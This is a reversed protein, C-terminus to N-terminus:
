SMKRRYRRTRSKSCVDCDAHRFQLHKYENAFLWNLFQANVIHALVPCSIDAPEESARNCSSRLRKSKGQRWFTLRIRDGAELEDMRAALKGVTDVQKGDVVTITM